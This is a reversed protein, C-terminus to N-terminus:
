KRIILIKGGKQEEFSYELNPDVKKVYLKIQNKLSYINIPKVMITDGSQKLEEFFYKKNGHAM